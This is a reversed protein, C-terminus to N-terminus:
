ETSRTRTSWPCIRRINALVEKFGEKMETRLVNVDGRLGNVAQQNVSQRVSMEPM